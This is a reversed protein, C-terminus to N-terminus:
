FDLRIRISLDTERNKEIPRSTKAVAVLSGVSDYLGVTTVYSFPVGGESIAIIKGDNDTYTPNTSYNLQSPAARCFIQRSNLVTENRFAIASEASDGFRTGCFHDLVDDISAKLVFDPYLKGEFLEFGSQDEVISDDSYFPDPDDSILPQGLPLTDSLAADIDEFTGQPIYVDVSLGSTAQPVTISTGDADAAQADAEVTYVDKIYKNDANKIYWPGSKATVAATNNSDIIGRLIQDPNFVKEIDLVLIGKDYYILGVYNGDPDTLTSIEGAVPSVFLNTSAIADRIVYFENGDAANTSPNL